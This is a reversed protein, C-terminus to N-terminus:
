AAKHILQRPTISPPRTFQRRYWQLSPTTENTVEYEEQWSWHAISWANTKCPSFFFDIHCHILHISLQQANHIDDCKLQPTTQSRHKLHILATVPTDSAKLYEGWQEVAAQRERIFISFVTHQHLCAALATTAPASPRHFVDKRSSFSERSSCVCCCCGDM